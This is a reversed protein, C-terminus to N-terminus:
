TKKIQLTVTLALISEGGGGGGGGGGGMRLGHVNPLITFLVHALGREWQEPIKLFTNLM